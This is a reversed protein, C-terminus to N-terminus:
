ATRVSRITLATSVGVLIGVIDTWIDVCAVAVHFELSEILESGVGFATLFFLFTIKTSVRRPIWESMGALCGFLLIHLWPHLAGKLYLMVKFQVPLLSASVAILILASSLWIAYRRTAKM